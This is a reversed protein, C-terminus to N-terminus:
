KRGGLVARKGGMCRDNTKKPPFGENTGMTLARRSARNPRKTDLWGSRVSGDGRKKGGVREEEELRQTHSM